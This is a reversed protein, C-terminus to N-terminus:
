FPTPIVHFLVLLIVVGVAAIIWGIKKQFIMALVLGFGILGLGTFGKVPNGSWDFRNIPADPAFVNMTIKHLLTSTDLM